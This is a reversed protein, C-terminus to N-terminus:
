KRLAYRIVLKPPDGRDTELGEMFIRGDPGDAAIALQGIESTAINSAAGDPLPLLAVLNWGRVQAKVDFVIPGPTVPRFESPNFAHLQDDYVVSTSDFNEVNLVAMEKGTAGTEGMVHVTLEASYIYADKPLASRDFTLLINDVGTTRCILAFACSCDIGTHNGDLWTDALLPLEISSRFEARMQAVSAPPQTAGSAVPLLTLLLATVLFSVFWKPKIQFKRV